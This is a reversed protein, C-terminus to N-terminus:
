SRENLEKALSLAMALHAESRAIRDDFSENLRAVGEAMQQFFGLATAHREEPAVSFDPVIPALGDMMDQPTEEQDISRVADLHSLIEKATEVATANLSLENLLLSAQSFLDIRHKVREVAVKRTEGSSTPRDFKVPDPAVGQARSELRSFLLKELNQARERSERVGDNDEVSITVLQEIVALLRRGTDAM